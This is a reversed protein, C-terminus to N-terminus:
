EGFNSVFLAALSETAAAEDHGEAQILIEDGFKAGMSLISLISAPDFEKDNKKLRVRAAFKKVEKALMSAPRAHMGTENQITVAKSVV